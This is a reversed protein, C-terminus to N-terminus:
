SLGSPMSYRMVSSCRFIAVPQSISSPGDTSHISRFQNQQNNSTLTYLLDIGTGAGIGQIVQQLGATMEGITKGVCGEGFMTINGIKSLPEGIAKAVEPLQKILEIGLMAENNEKLGVARQKLAEAEALGKAKIKLAEALKEQEIKKAEAEKQRRFLEAESKKEIDYKSADATKRVEANLKQEKVSAEKEQLEITKDMAMIKADVEAQNLNSDKEAKRIAYAADAEAKKIDSQIKM